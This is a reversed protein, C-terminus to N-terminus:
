QSETELSNTILTMMLIIIWTIMNLDSYEETNLDHIYDKSYERSFSEWSYHKCNRAPCTGWQGPRWKLAAEEDCSAYFTECMNEKCGGCLKIDGEEMGKLFFREKWEDRQDILSSM